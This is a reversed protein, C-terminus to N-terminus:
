ALSRGPHAADHGLEKSSRMNCVIGASSLPSTGPGKTQRVTWNIVVGSVTRTEVVPDPEYLYALWQVALVVCVIIVFAIGARRKWIHRDLRRRTEPRM